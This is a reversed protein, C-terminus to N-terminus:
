KNRNGFKYLNCIGKETSNNIVEQYIHSYKKIEFEDIPYIMENIIKKRVLPLWDEIVIADNFDIKYQYNSFLNSYFFDIIYRNEPHLAFNMKRVDDSNVVFECSTGLALFQELAIFDELTVLNNWGNLLQSLQMCNGSIKTNKFLNAIIGRMISIKNKDFYHYFCLGRVPTDSAPFVHFDITKDSCNCYNFVYNIIKNSLSLNDILSNSCIEHNKKLRPSIFLCLKGVSLINGDYHYKINVKELLEKLYEIDIGEFNYTTQNDCNINCLIYNMLIDLTNAKKVLEINDEKKELVM